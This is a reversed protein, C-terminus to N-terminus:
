INNKSKKNIKNKNYNKTTNIKIKPKNKLLLSNENIKNNIKLEQSKENKIAEASDINKNKIIKEKLKINNLEKNKKRNRYKQLLKYGLYSTGAIAGGILLNKRNIYDSFKFEKKNNLQNDLNFTNKIGPINKQNKNKLVKEEIENGKYDNLNEKLKINLKEEYQKKLENFNKINEYDEYKNLTSEDLNFFLYYINDLLNNFDNENLKSIDNFLISYKESFLDYHNIKKNSIKYIINLLYNIKNIFEGKEKNLNEKNEKKLYQYNIRFEKLEAIINKINEDLLTNLYNLNDLIYSDRINKNQNNSNKINGILLNISETKIDESEKFIKKINENIIKNYDNSELEKSLIEGIKIFNCISLMKILNDFFNDNEFFKNSTSENKFKKFELNGKDSIKKIKFIENKYKLNLNKLDKLLINYKDNIINIILEFILRLNLDKIPKKNIEFYNSKNLKLILNKYKNENKNENKSDIKIMETIIDKVSNLIEKPNYKIEDKTGNENEFYIISERLEENYKKGNFAENYKFIHNFIDDEAMLMFPILVLGHHLTQIGFATKFENGNIIFRKAGFTKDKIKALFELNKLNNENVIKGANRELFFKEHKNILKNLFGESNINTSNSLEKLKIKAANQKLLARNFLTSRIPATIINTFAGLLFGDIAHHSANHIKELGTNYEKNKNINLGEGKLRLDLNEESFGIINNLYTNNFLLEEMFTINKNYGTNFNNKKNNINNNKFKIDLNENDTFDTLNAYYPNDELFNKENLKDTGKIKNLAMQDIAGYGLSILAADRGFKLGHDFSKKTFQEFTKKPGLNVNIEQMINAKGNNGNPSISKLYNPVNHKLSMYIKMSENKIKNSTNKAKIKIFDKALKNNFLKKTISAGFLIYNNLLLIILFIIFKNLNNLIKM